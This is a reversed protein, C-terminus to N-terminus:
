KQCNYLISHSKHLEFNDIYLKCLDPNEIVLLNEGNKNEAAKTHNYSGTILIKKDIILIKDHAISHASDIYPVVNNIILVNLVSYKYTTNNKDLIIVVNVNKNKANILETAILKNTFVYSQVLIESQASKIMNVIKSEATDISRKIKPSFYVSTKTNNLILEKAHSVNCFIMLFIILILNIKKM